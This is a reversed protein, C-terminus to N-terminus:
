VNQLFTKTCASFRCCVRHFFLLILGVCLLWQAKFLLTCIDGHLGYPCMLSYLKMSEFEASSPPLHDAEPWPQKVRTSSM